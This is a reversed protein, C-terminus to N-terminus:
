KTARAIGTYNGDARNAISVKYQGLPEDFVTFEHTKDGLAVTVKDIQAITNFSVGGDLSKKLLIDAGLTIAAAKVQISIREYTEAEFAPGDGDVVVADLVEEKPFDHISIYTLSM